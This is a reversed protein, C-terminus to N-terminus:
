ESENTAKLPVREIAEIAGEAIVRSGEHLRVRTGVTVWDPILHPSFFWDTEIVCQDGPACSDRGVVTIPGGWLRPDDEFGWDPRYDSVFPTHRRGDETHRVAVKARAYRIGGHKEWPQPM